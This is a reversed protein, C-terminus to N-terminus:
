NTETFFIELKLKREDENPINSGFLVTSLPSINSGVPLEREVGGSLMANQAGTIRIDPTVALGLTANTSDRIIINNIHDTIRITYKANNEDVEELLADYNLFVGFASDAFTNETDPNYLPFNNETNYLYLRFPEYVTGAANLAARDVHFVLNAENIIWNNAKIQNIFDAGGAEDEAFLRIEAFSGSDGKLYIRSANEGTDLQNLIEAPYDENIYTNVANGLIPNAANGSTLFNLVFSSESRIIEGNDLDDFEYTITISADTLDLLVMIDRDIPTMQLHIGRFFEQFNSISLLESQGEKDIINQQFFDTDLAVRIGPQFREPAEESEDEETDPDDEQFILTEEDTITVPGNFLEDSVFAPAFQQTSFFEQSEEFNTDPDLDRLFFTSRSVRLNFSNEVNEVMGYISDLDRKIPFRNVATSTDEADGIGDGDTDPNFPDTGALREQNDSLGDGDEDSNPDTPDNDVEDKVGDGDRDGRPNQLFPIFLIVETVTENEQITADSDDTDAIDETSQPFTGFRPNAGSALTIQSTIQAETRGYIPDNFFGLQYIPLRNTPVADVKKNFAFVDYSVRGTTFPEGGIVNDGVTTLDEECSVVLIALFGALLLLSKKKSLFRVM